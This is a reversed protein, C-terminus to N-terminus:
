EFRPTTPMLNLMWNNRPHCPLSGVAVGVVGVEVAVGGPEAEEVVVGVILVFLCIYWDTSCTYSATMVIALDKWTM